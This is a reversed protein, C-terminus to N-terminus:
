VITRWCSSRMSEHWCQISGWSNRWHRFMIVSISRLKCLLIRKVPLKFSVQAYPGACACGGRTQIGFLDNLLTTVFNYHLYLSTEQHKILFSFIPLRQLEHSGLIELEKVSSWREFAMRAFCLCFIKCCDKNFFIAARAFKIWRCLTEDKEKILSTGISDKLQFVMGARVSEVIAPTGGEERKEVDQLYRLVRYM